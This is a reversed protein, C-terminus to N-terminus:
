RGSHRRVLLTVIAGIAVGIVLALIAFGVIQNFVAQEVLSGLSM